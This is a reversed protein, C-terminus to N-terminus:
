AGAFRPYTVGRVATQVAFVSGALPENALIEAGLGDRASTVFLTRMDAGGFVCSTPRSVPFVIRTLLEGHPSFRLVCGGDWQASWLCGEEDLAAGDPAHVAGHLDVFRRQASLAGTAPDLAHWDIVQRASDTVYLGRQDAAGVIGNPITLGELVRRLTWDPSLAYLAGQAEAAADDMTGFWFRGDGAVGGDNSRNNPKDAEFTALPTYAGAVLDIVGVSRGAAAVLANAGVCLGLASAPADLDIPAATAAGHDVVYLRARRIDVWFLRGQADDWLPGEGLVADCRAYLVPALM